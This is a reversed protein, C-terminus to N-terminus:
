LSHAHLSLDNYFVAEEEWFICHKASLSVDAENINAFLKIYDLAREHNYLIYIFKVLTVANMEVLFDTLILKSNRVKGRRPLM